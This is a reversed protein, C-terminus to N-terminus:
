SGKKPPRYTEGKDPPMSEHWAVVAQTLRQVVDPHRASLDAVEGPDADLDYLQPQSGDYECLLKWKGHRVALDPLDPM